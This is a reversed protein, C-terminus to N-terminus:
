RDHSPRGLTLTQTTYQNGAALYAAYTTYEGLNNDYGSLMITANDLTQTDDFVLSDYQGLDIVGPGAGGSGTVTLGGAVYVSSSQTGLNLIGDYTVGDLTGGQFSLGAGGDQIVGGEIVGGDLTLQGLTSGSGVAM